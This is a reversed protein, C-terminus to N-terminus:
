ALRSDGLSIDELFALAVEDNRLAFTRRSIDMSTAGYPSGPLSRLLSFICSRIAFGFMQSLYTSIAGVSTDILLGDNETPVANRGVAEIFRTDFRAERHIVSHRVAIAYRTSKSLTGRPDFDLGIRTITTTILNDLKSRGDLVPNATAGSCAELLTLNQELHGAAVALLGYRVIDGVPQAMSSIELFLPANRAIAGKDQTEALLNEMQQTENSIRAGFASPVFESALDSLSTEIPPRFYGGHPTSGAAAYQGSVLEAYSRLLNSELDVPDILHDLEQLIGDVDPTTDFIFTNGCANQLMLYLNLSYNLATSLRGAMQVDSDTMAM